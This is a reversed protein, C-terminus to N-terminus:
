YKGSFFPLNDLQSFLYNKCGIKGKIIFFIYLFAMM